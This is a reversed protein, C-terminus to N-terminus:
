TRDGTGFPAPLWTAAQEKQYPHCTVKVQKSSAAYQDTEFLYYAREVLASLTPRQYTRLGHWKSEKQSGAELKGAVLRNPLTVHM